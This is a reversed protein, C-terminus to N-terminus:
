KEVGPAIIMCLGVGTAISYKCSQKRRTRPLAPAHYKILRRRSSIVQSHGSRMLCNLGAFSRLHGFTCTSRRRGPTWSLDALVPGDDFIMQEEFPTRRFDRKRFRGRGPITMAKGYDPYITHPCRPHAYRTSDHPRTSAEEQHCSRWRACICIKLRVETVREGPKAM